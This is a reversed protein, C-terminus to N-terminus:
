HMITQVGCIILLIQARTVAVSRLDVRWSDIIHWRHACPRVHRCKKEPPVVVFAHGLPYVATDRATCILKKELFKARVIRKQRARYDEADRHTSHMRVGLAHLRDTTNGYLMSHTAPNINVSCTLKALACLEKSSMRETRTITQGTFAALARGMCDNGDKDMSGTSMHKRSTRLRIVALSDKHLNETSAVSTM